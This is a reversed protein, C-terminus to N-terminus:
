VKKDEKDKPLNPVKIKTCFCKIGKFLRGNAFEVFGQAFNYPCSQGASMSMSRPSNSELIRKLFQAGKIQNDKEAGEPLKRAQKMQKNAVGLVAKYIIRGLLASQALESFRSEMTIPKKPPLPPIKLGSMREFAEDDIRTVDAAKYIDNVLEICPLAVAEGQLMVTQVLKVTQCDSCIQLEYEGNELVPRNEKVHWYRLDDINFDMEVRKSEGAKLYVKVFARLEKTPKFVGNKPPKVYLQVIEAGYMKGTNTVICSAKIKGGKVETKIDSYDFMTYSLGYGFPYRVQKNATLYYRYGVFVSEKYVENVTKGFDAGFPIDAYEMAWTEALKGCPNAEGFLLHESATGGNQGPLYMNLIASVNNAFPLGVPSGGFLVVVVKKGANTLADILDLQNQPLRMSDRDGGESEVYDTLGAFVLVTEYKKSKEVAEAILDYRPETQNEAFGRAFEYNIAANDFATKPSTVFTPNIMSSGAGQYRMKIFLDGVVLYEGNKDLPLAGDNKLLVACDEAIKASLANHTDFDAQQKDTSAYKDVLRLVNLVCLNLAEIDLTGDRVADIIQKRCVATDGPMELDLQAKIASVRDRIAGWDTMVTGYFGWEDRLVETLLWENESCYTGNIQNYACMMAAPHSEKVIIEFVKLYIDRIARIDAVSNGM